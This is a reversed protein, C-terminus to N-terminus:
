ISLLPNMFGMQRSSFYQIFRQGHFIHRPLINRLNSGRNLNCKLNIILQQSLQQYLNLLNILQFLVLTALQLSLSSLNPMKRQEAEFRRITVDPDNTVRCYNCPYQLLRVNIMAACYKESIIGLLEVWSTLGEWQKRNGRVFGLGSDCRTWNKIPYITKYCVWLGCHSTFPAMFPQLTINDGWKARNPTSIEFVNAM